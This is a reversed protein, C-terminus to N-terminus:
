DEQEVGPAPDVREDRELRSFGTADPIPHLDAPAPEPKM